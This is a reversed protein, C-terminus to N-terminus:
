IVRVVSVRHTDEGRLLIRCGVGELTLLLPASGHVYAGFYDTDEEVINRRSPDSAAVFCSSAVVGVLEDDCWPAIRYVGAPVELAVAVDIGELTADYYQEHRTHLAPGIPYNLPM